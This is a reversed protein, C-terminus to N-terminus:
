DLSNKSKFNQMTSWFMLYHMVFTKAAVPDIYLLLKNGLPKTSHIAQYGKIQDIADWRKVPNNLKPSIEPIVVTSTSTNVNSKFSGSPLFPFNQNYSTVKEKVQNLTQDLSSIKSALRSYVVAPIVLVETPSVIVFM